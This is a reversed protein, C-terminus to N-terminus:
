GNPWRVEVFLLNFMITIKNRCLIVCLAWDKTAKTIHCCGCYWCCNLRYVWSNSQRWTIFDGALDVVCTVTYQLRNFSFSIWSFRNFRHFRDLSGYPKHWVSVFLRHKRAQTWFHLSTEVPTKFSFQFIIGHPTHCPNLQRKASSCSTLNKDFHSNTKASNKLM